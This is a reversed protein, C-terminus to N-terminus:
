LKLNLIWSELLFFLSQLCTDFTKGAKIDKKM